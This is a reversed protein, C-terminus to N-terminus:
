NLPMWDRSDGATSSPQPQLFHIRELTPTDTSHVRTARFHTLNKLHDGASLSLERKSYTSNSGKFPMKDEMLIMCVIEYLTVLIIGGM